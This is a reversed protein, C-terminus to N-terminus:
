ESRREGYSCYDSASPRIKDDAFAECIGSPMLHKCEGCQVIQTAYEDLELCEHLIQSLANLVRDINYIM